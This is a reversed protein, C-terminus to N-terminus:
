DMKLINSNQLISTKSGTSIQQNKQLKQIFMPPENIQRDIPQGIPTEYNDEEYDHSNNCEQNSHTKLKEQPSSQFFCKGCKTCPYYTFQQSVPNAPTNKVIILNGEALLNLHKAIIHQKLECFSQLTAIREDCCTNCFLGKDEIEKLELHALAINNEEPDCNIRILGPLPRRKKKIILVEGIKGHMKEIKIPSASNSEINKSSEVVEKFTLGINKKLYENTTQRSHAHAMEVHLALAKKAAFSPEDKCLICKFSDITKESSNKQLCIIEMNKGDGVNSNFNVNEVLYM